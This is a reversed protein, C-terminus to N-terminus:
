ATCSTRYYFLMTTKELIMLNGIVKRVSIRGQLNEKRNDAKNDFNHRAFRFRCGGSGPVKQLSRNFLQWARRGCRFTKEKRLTSIDIFINTRGAAAINHMGM